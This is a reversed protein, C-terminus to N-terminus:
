GSQGPPTQSLQVGWGPATYPVMDFAEGFDLYVVDVAKGKDV